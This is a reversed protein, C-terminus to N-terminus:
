LKLIKKLKEKGRLARTQATKEPIKLIKAIERLKYGKLRLKLVEKYINELKNIAEELNKNPDQTYQIEIQIKKDEFEQNESIQQTSQSQRLIKDRNKKAINESIKQLYILFAPFSCPEFRRLLEFDKEMLKLYVLQATDEIDEENIPLIKKVTGYVLPHFLNMFKKWAMEDRDILRQLLQKLEENGLM